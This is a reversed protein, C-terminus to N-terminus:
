VMSILSHELFDGNGMRLSGLRIEGLSLFGALIGDVLGRPSELM